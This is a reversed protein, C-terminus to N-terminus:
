PSRRRRGPRDRLQGVGRPPLRELDRAGADHERDEVSEDRRDRHGASFGGTALRLPMEARGNVLAQDAPVQALPDACTIHVVDTPGTVPNWWQDTALVTLTFAYNISQDIADGTRGTATGPAPSEGPALVLM